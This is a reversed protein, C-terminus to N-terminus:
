VREDGWRVGSSHSDIAADRRGSGWGRLVFGAGQDDICNPDSFPFPIKRGTELRNCISDFFEGVKLVIYNSFMLVPVCALVVLTLKWGYSLSIIISIIFGM